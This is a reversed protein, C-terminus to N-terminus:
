RAILGAQAGAAYGANVNVTTLYTCSQLMGLLAAEGDGGMGSGTDVPLGIVPSDVLGAVVTALAGERGAAVVVADCNRLDEVASLVRGISSVGIDYRTEVDCGMEEAIVAAGEAVPVDSTGASTVAVSGESAPPEYDPGHLVLTQSRDYWRTDAVTEELEARTEEDPANVVAQGSEAALERGIRVVETATKRETDVVQPVGTRAAETVDLRAFEGLEVYRGLQQKAAEPALDGDAVRELIDLVGDSHEM